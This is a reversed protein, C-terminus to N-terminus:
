VYSKIAVFRKPSRISMSGYQSPGVPSFTSAMVFPLSSVITATADMPVTGSASTPMRNPMHEWNRTKSRPVISYM